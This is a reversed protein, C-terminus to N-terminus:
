SALARVGSAEEQGSGAAPEATTRILWFGPGHEDWFGRGVEWGDVRALEQWTWWWAWHGWDAFDPNNFVHVLGRRQPDPRAILRGTRSGYAPMTLRESTFRAMVPCSDCDGKRGCYGFNGYSARRTDTQAIWLTQWTTPKLACEDNWFSEIRLRNWGQGDPGRPDRQPAPLYVPM